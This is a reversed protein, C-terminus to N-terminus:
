RGESRGNVHGASREEDTVRISQGVGRRRSRTEQSHQRAMTYAGSHLTVSHAVQKVEELQRRDASFRM